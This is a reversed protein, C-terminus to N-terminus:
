RVRILRYERRLRSTHSVIPKDWVNGFLVDDADIEGLFRGEIGISWTMGGERLGFYGSEPERPGEAGTPGLYSAMRVVLNGEFHPGSVHLAHADENVKLTTLQTLSSGAKVLIRPQTSSVM